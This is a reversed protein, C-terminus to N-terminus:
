LYGHEPLQTGEPILNFGMLRELQIQDVRQLGVLRKVDSPTIQPSTEKAESPEPFWKMRYVPEKDKMRSVRVIQGAKLMREAETISIWCRFGKDSNQLKANQKYM